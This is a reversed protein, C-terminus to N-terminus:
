WLTVDENTFPSLIARINGVRGARFERLMKEYTKCPGENLLGLLATAGPTGVDITAPGLVARVGATKLSSNFEWNNRLCLAKLVLFNIFVSDSSPDPTLTEDGFDVVYDADLDQIVLSAAFLMLQDLTADSYTEADPDDLLLRLPTRVTDQWAM